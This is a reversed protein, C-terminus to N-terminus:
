PPKTYTEFMSVKIHAHKVELINTIYFPGHRASSEEDMTQTYIYGSSSMLLLHEGEETFVFTADRIKGSPLLFYYQPSIADQSLDYIKVFDATIVAIKTQSGPLWEAQLPHFFIYKPHFKLLGTFFGKRKM